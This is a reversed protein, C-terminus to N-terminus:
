RANPTFPQRHSSRPTPPPLSHPLPHHHSDISKTAKDKNKKTKRKRKTKRERKKKKGKETKKERERKKETGKKRARQEEVIKERKQERRENREEKIGAAKDKEKGGKEVLKCIEKLREM